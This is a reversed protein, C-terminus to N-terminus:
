GPRTGRCNPYGPCGWFQRNANPGRRATRRVMLAGCRPCAPAQGELRSGDCQPREKTGSVSARPKEQVSRVMEVLDDGGVLAIRNERAFAASESTFTGYSVVIGYDARKSAMVGRLERVVQVGVKRCKWHKCQVLTTRGGKRLIVDIGGDSRSDGTRDVAFGKRRYAEAVLEEFEGWSLDRISGLGTQIDLRRRNQFKVFEALGWIVLVCFAAVRASNYALSAFVGGIPDAATAGSGRPSLLIAPIISRLVVYVIAAFIPGFWWPQTVLTRFILDPLTESTRRAM